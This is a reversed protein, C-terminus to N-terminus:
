FPKIAAAIERMSVEHKQNIELEIGIYKETFIKRLYTVFGDAIGRYPYNFRVIFGPLQTLIHAKWQHCFSKEAARSPDYLLGIDAKRIDGNLVPTFTHVSLHIVEDGSQIQERIAQEARRRYPTYHQLIVKRKEERSLPKSIESFLRPHHLSRNLEVLLRTTGNFLAFDAKERLIDFAPESGIDYGKHSSLIDAKGAFLARYEEPVDNGGHECTIVWRRM